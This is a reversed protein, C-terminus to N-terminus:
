YFLIKNFHLIVVTIQKQVYVLFLLLMYFHGKGHWHKNCQYIDLDNMEDFQKRQEKGETAEIWQKSRSYIIQKSCTYMHLYRDIDAVKLPFTVRLYNRVVSHRKRIKAASNEETIAANCFKIHWDVSLIFTAKASSLFTCYKSTVCSQIHFWKVSIYLWYVPLM